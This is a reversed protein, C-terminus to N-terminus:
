QSAVLLSGDGYMYVNRVVLAYGQYVHTVSHMLAAKIFFWHHCQGLGSM